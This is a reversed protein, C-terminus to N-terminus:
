EKTWRAANYIDIIISPGNYVRHLRVIGMDRACRLLHRRRIQRDSRFNGIVAADGDAAMAAGLCIRRLVDRKPCRGSTQRPQGHTVIKKRKRRTDLHNRREFQIDNM